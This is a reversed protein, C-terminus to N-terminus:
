ILKLSICNAYSLIFWNSVETQLLVTLSRDDGCDVCIVDWQGKSCRSVIKHTHTHTHTHLTHTHSCSHAHACRLTHTHVCAHVGSGM